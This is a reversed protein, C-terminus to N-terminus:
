ESFLHWIFIWLPIFIFILIPIFVIVAIIVGLTKAMKMEEPTSFTDPPLDNFTIWRDTGEICVPTVLSLERRQVMKRVIKADFPGEVKEGNRRFYLRTM